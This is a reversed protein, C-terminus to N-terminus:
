QSPTDTWMLIVNAWVANDHSGWLPSFPLTSLPNPTNELDQERKSDKYSEFIVAAEIDLKIQNNYNSRHRKLARGNSTHTGTDKPSGWM